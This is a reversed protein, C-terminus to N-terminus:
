IKFQLHVAETRRQHNRHLAGAEGEGGSLPANGSGSGRVPGGDDPPWFGGRVEGVM